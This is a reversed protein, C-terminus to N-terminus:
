LDTERKSTRHVEVFCKGDCEPFKDRISSIVLSGHEILLDWNEWLGFGRGM